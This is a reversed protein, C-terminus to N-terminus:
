YMTRLVQVCFLALNMSCSSVDNCVVIMGLDFVCNGHVYVLILVLTNCYAQVEVCGNRLQEAAAASLGIRESGASLFYTLAASGM